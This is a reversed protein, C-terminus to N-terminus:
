YITVTQIRVEANTGTSIQITQYIVHLYHFIEEHTIMTIIGINFNNTVFRKLAM